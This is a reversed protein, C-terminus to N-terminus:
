DTALPVSNKADRGEMLRVAQEALLDVQFRLSAATNGGVHPTIFVNPLQWLLDDAPLPEPDTVDLAFELRGSRAEEHLASADVVSGRGINVLVAGDPMAALHTRDLLGHTFETEPLSCVVADYHPLLDVLEEIAHVRTGDALDRGHHAVRAIEVSFGTLLQEVASGVGGYGLLLVRSGVLGATRHNDWRAGTRVFGPLERTAALLLTVALEATPLEMVGRSNCLVAGTPVCGELGEVGISLAQVVSVSPYLERTRRLVQTSVYQGTTKEQTTHYPIVLLDIEAPDAASADPYKPSWKLLRLEGSATRPALREAVADYLYDYPLSM